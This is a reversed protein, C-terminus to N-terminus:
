RTEEINDDNIKYSDDVYENQKARKLQQSENNENNQKKEFEFNTNHGFVGKNYSPSVVVKPPPISPPSRKKNRLQSMEMNNKTPIPPANTNPSSPTSIQSLLVNSNGIHKLIPKRNLPGSLGQQELNLLVKDEDSQTQAGKYETEAQELKTLQTPTPPLPKDILKEILDAIM